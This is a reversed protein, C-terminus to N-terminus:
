YQVQLSLYVYHNLHGSPSIFMRYNPTIQVYKIPSYQFGATVTHGSFPDDDLNSFLYDWRSFIEFNKPLVFSAYASIGHQHYGAKFHSNFLNNFEAAITFLRHQYGAFFSLNEQAKGLTDTDAEDGRDAYVRIALGEIPRFTIGAGYKFKNDVHLKRYGEGNVFMADAELWHTFRYRVTVGLDAAKGFDKIDQFSRLMYSYKWYDMQLTFQELPVLGVKLTLNRPEWCLMAYKVYAIREIESDKIKPIGVDFLITTSLTKTFNLRYGLYSRDLEFGIDKRKEGFGSHFNVFLLIIPKGHIKFKKVSDNKVLVSDGVATQATLLPISITCLLLFAFIAKFAYLSLQRQNTM